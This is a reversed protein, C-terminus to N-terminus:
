QEFQSVLSAVSHTYNKNRHKWRVEYEVQKTNGTIVTGRRAVSFNKFGNNVPRDVRIVTNATLSTSIQAFPKAKEHVMQADAILMAEQRLQNELNYYLAYNVTQLLALLGVSMIVIAVLLEILTFGCKNSNVHLEM